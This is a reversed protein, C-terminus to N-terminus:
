ALLKSFFLPVYIDWESMLTNEFLPFVSDWQRMFAGDRSQMLPYKPHFRGFCTACFLVECTTGLFTSRVENGATSCRRCRRRKHAKMAGHGTGTFSVEGCTGVMKKDMQRDKCQSEFNELVATTGLHTGVQCSNYSILFLIEVCLYGCNRQPILTAIGCPITNRHM